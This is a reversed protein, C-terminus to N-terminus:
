RTNYQSPNNRTQTHAQRAPPQNAQLPILILNMAGPIRRPRHNPPQTPPILRSAKRVPPRVVNPIIPFPIRIIIITALKNKGSNESGWRKWKKDVNSQAPVWAGMFPVCAGKVVVSVLRHTLDEVNSVSFAGTGAKAVGYAHSGVSRKEDEIAARKDADGMHNPIQRSPYKCQMCWLCGRSRGVRTWTHLLDSLILAPYLTWPLFWISGALFEMNFLACLAPWMAIAVFIFWKQHVDKENLLGYLTLLLIDAVGCALFTM